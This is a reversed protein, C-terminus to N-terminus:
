FTSIVTWTGSLIIVWLALRRFWQDNLKRIAKIGIFVGVLMSPILWLSYTFVQKTLIGSYAFTCM